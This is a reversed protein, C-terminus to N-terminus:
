FLRPSLSVMWPTILRIVWSSLVAPLTELRITTSTTNTCDVCFDSRTFFIVIGILTAMLVTNGTAEELGDKLLDLFVAALLTGAAFPTAYQALAKAARKSSLLLVGGFLSFLGGVLSYFLIHEYNAM